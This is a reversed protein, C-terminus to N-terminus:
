APHVDQLAPSAPLNAIQSKAPASRGERVAVIEGIVALAIEATSRAGIDLGIPTRLRALEEDTFGEEALMQKITAGRKRSGLMGVYGVNSRLAHRLVPLEYKYDHAVLVVYTSPTAPLGEAIESPMGVHIEDAAPFRQRTAFRERGDVVVTRMGLERAFVALSMAVQVAGYIVVTEEPAHREIYLPIEFEDSSVREVGSPTAARLRELATRAVIADLGRDGLTGAIAGSDGVVLRGAGGDLRAVALVTRGSALASRVARYAVALPDSSNRADVPEVLVDVTGGCTLGIEWAEEDGLSVSVLKPRGSQLVRDAEEIVRADVCGGITVTGLIAGGEAVWMTAGAKRPTTGKASVLTALAAPRGAEIVRELQGLLESM